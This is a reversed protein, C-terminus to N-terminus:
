RPACRHPQGGDPARRQRLALGAGPPARSTVPGRCPSTSQDGAPRVRPLPLAGAPVHRAALRHSHPRAKKAARSIDKFNRRLPSMGLARAGPRERWPQAAPIAPLHSRTQPLQGHFAHVAVPVLAIALLPARALASAPAM